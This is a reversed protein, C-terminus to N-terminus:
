EKLVNKVPNAYIGLFISQLEEQEGPFSRLGDHMYERFDNKESQSYYHSFVTIDHLLDYAIYNTKFLKYNSCMRDDIIKALRQYKGNRECKGCEELEEPSLSETVVLNIEGKWQTIGKIISNLDENESKVYKQFRSVYLELTKLFDCPEYEYSIVMPTINLEGINDVFKKDSSMSLMKLVAVETKDDGDKTRGNRQAIWISQGKETIAYRMYSSVKLSNNYFDYINGGRVIKFMKNSKGFDVALQEKMLNSGFTIEATDLSSRNLAIQLLAADLSIDRHNSIFMCKKEDSLGELGNFSFNSSTKRIITDVFRTMIKAQFEKVSSIGIVSAKCENIDADPFLYGIISPFYPSDAIREMAAPIEEDVYPRTDEFVNTDYM